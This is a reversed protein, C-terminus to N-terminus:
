SGTFLVLPYSIVIDQICKIEKPSLPQTTNVEVRQVQAGYQIPAAKYPAHQSSVPKPHQYKMLTKNIYRPMHCDVLGLTYNWTLHIGCFLSGTMNIAMTHHEKLSNVLHDMDHMNTVKIGFDNVVLCFMINQWVHCWLGPTHQCQYYGKIALRKQLLQNALVGAQPLGYMGKWIKIYVWGDPTVIDHLNYHDIIKNPIIDLRLHMYKPNPMPTSLYFNALNIGLCKAGPTSITSNILLKATTLNAMQTSKNGPYDIRNGGVTLRIRHKRKRRPNTIAAFTDTPPANTLQFLCSPSSFVHTLAPSMESARSFNGLKIPLVTSVCKKHKDMKMLHCYEFINSTNDNIIAGIFHVTSHSSPSITELSICEAVFAYGCCLSPPHTCLTPTPMLEEAIVCNIM